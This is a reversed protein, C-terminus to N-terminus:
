WNAARNAPASNCDGSHLTRADCVVPGLRQDRETPLLSQDFDRADGGVSRRSQEDPSQEKVLLRDHMERERGVSPQDGDVLAAPDTDRRERGARGLADDLDTALVDRRRGRGVARRDECEGVLAHAVGLDERDIDRRALHRVSGLDFRQADLCLHERQRWRARRILTEDLALQRALLLFRPAVVLFNVLREREDVERGPVDVNAHEIVSRLVRETIQRRDHHARRV